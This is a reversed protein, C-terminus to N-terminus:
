TARLVDVPNARSARIAPAVCAALSALVVVAEAVVLAVVDSAPIRGLWTFDFLQGFSIALFAGVAIGGLVMVLADRIVVRLLDTPSAGLALQIAFERMRQGVIYNVVGYVGVVALLLVFSALSIFVWAMFTRRTLEATHAALEWRFNPGYGGAPLAAVLAHRILVLNRPDDNAVRIKLDHTACGASGAVVVDPISGAYGDDGTRRPQRAVGIIRVWPANSAFSGLKLEHGVASEFPWFRHATYENVIATGGTVVDGPGFDRGAVMPVGLARFFDPTTITYGPEPRQVVGSSQDSTMIHRELRGLATAAVYRVGPVKELKRALDNYFLSTSDERPCLRQPYLSVTYLHKADYAFKTRAFLIASRTLLGSATTLVLAGAVEAVVLGRYWRNSRATAGSGGDKLTVATSGDHAQLAPVLGAVLLAIVTVGIDAAVIHGNLHPRLFGFESLEPPMNFELLHVGWTSLVTGVVGGLFALVTCEVFVTRAIATHDAGIALRVAFEHQRALGRAVMLNALNLSAVLLVLFAAGALALHLDRLPAAPTVLPQVQYGVVHDPQPFMAAVQRRGPELATAIRQLPVGAGVRVLGTFQDYPGALYHAPPDAMIEYVDPPMLQSGDLMGMTPPAVGAVPHVGDRLAVTLGRLRPDRHFQSTWFTFSIVVPTPHSATDAAAFVRGEVPRVGLMTFYDAGVEAVKLSVVGMQTSIDVTHEAVPVVRWPFASISVM